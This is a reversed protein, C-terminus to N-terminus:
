SQLILNNNRYLIQFLNKFMGLVGFKFIWHRYQISVPIGDMIWRFFRYSVSEIIHCLHIEIAATGWCSLAKSNSYLTYVPARLRSVNGRASAPHGTTDWSFLLSSDLRDLRIELLYIKWSYGLVRHLFFSNSTMFVRISNMNFVFPSNRKKPDVNLALSNNNNNIRCKGTDKSLPPFIIRDTIALLM